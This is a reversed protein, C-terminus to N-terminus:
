WNEWVGAPVVTRMLGWHRMAHDKHFREIVWENGKRLVVGEGEGDEGGTVDEMKIELEKGPPM